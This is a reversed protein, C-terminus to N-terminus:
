RLPNYGRQAASRDLFSPQREILKDFLMLSFWVLWVAYVRPYALVIWGSNPLPLLYLGLATLVMVRGLARLYQWRILLWGLPLLMVTHHYQEGLPAVMVGWVVAAILALTLNQQSLRLNIWLTLGSFATFLFWVLQPSHLLPARSWPPADIFLQCLLSRLTQYAPTCAQPSNATEQLTQWFQQWIAPPWFPWLMLLTLGMMGFLWALPRWCRRWVLVPILGVGTMKLLLALALSIGSFQPRQQRQTVVAVTLLFFIVIYAQGYHFNDLVPPFLMSLSLLGALRPARASAALSFVLYALGVFLIVGNAITWLLRATQISFFSLPWLLLTTTPPNANYIDDAQGHSDGQVIPRFYAPDYIREDLQGSQLLRAASYYAGFGHTLGTSAPYVVRSVFWVAVATTIMYLTLSKLSM